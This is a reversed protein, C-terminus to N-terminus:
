ELIIANKIVKGERHSIIAEEIFDLSYEKNVFIEEDIKGQCILDFAAKVYKPTTHFIGKLTLQSYHLLKTDVTITTGSKPGGFLNVIGGKRAMLITNEWVEPLGVAEIAVDVGRNDETLEKVAEVVDDVESINVIESAGLKQATKLREVNLDTAIVRAGKLNALTIFFLGIPGAGNVVVTDGLKINSEEIGYVACALPETLAASKFSVNDPIRFTNQSVIRQPILQYESFAGWNIILDECMSHQEQKCYYCEQCPATNHAVVRDGPKFKDVGEGVSEVIGAAEHGFPIPPELLPYGRVYTKVDTGCTLAVKNRIVIEGKGPRPVSITELKIEGPGYFSARKMLKKEELTQM